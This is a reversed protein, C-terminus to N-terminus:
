PCGSLGSLESVLGFELAATPAAQVGVGIQAIHERTQGVHGVVLDLLNCGLGPAFRALLSPTSGLLRLV